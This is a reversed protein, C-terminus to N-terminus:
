IIQTNQSKPTDRESKASARTHNKSTHLVVKYGQVFSYFKSSLM